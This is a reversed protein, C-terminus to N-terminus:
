EHPLNDCPARSHPPLLPHHSGHVCLEGFDVLGDGNQDLNHMLARMEGDSAEHGFIRMAQALQAPGLRKEEHQDSAPGAALMDFVEKLRSINQESREFRRLAADVQRLEAATAVPRYWWSGDMAEGEELTTTLTVSINVPVLSDATLNVTAHM